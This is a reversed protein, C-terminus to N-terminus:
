PVLYMGLQDIVRRALSRSKLLEYQTEYFDQAWPSEAPTLNQFELVRDTQREINLLLKSKYIPTSNFTVILALVVGITLVTFVTRKRRVLVKWYEGLDIIDESAQQGSSAHDIERLRMLERQQTALELNQDRNGTSELNTGDTM